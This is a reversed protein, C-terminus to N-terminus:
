SHQKVGHFIVLWNNLSRHMHWLQIHEKVFFDYKINFTCKKYSDRFTANFEELFAEFNNFLPSQHELLPAFWAFAINSLLTGIFEVQTPGIPYWHLHFQIVLRIQNVFSQFTSHTGDFKDLLNIWPEKPQPQTTLVCGLSILAQNTQLHAIFEHLTQNEQELNRLVIIVEEMSTFM